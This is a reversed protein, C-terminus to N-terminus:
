VPGSGGTSNVPEESSRRRKVEARHRGKGTVCYKGRYKEQSCLKSSYRRTACAMTTKRWHMRIPPRRTTSSPKLGRLRAPAEAQLRPWRGGCSDTKSQTGDRGRCIKKDGAAGLFGQHEALYLGGSPPFDWRQGSRGILVLTDTVSALVRTSELGVSKISSSLQQGCRPSGECVSRGREAIRCLFQCLVPADRKTAASPHPPQLVCTVPDGPHRTCKNTPWLSDRDGRVTIGKGKGLYGRTSPLGERQNNLHEETETISTHLPAERQKWRALM